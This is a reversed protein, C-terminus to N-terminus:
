LNRELLSKAIVSAIYNKSKESIPVIFIFETYMNLEKITGHPDLYESKPERYFSIKIDNDDFLDIMEKFNDSYMDIYKIYKEEGIFSICVPTELKILIKDLFDKDLLLKLNDNVFKEFSIKM